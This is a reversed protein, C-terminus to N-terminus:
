LRSARSSKIGATGIQNSKPFSPTSYDGDDPGYMQDHKLRSPQYFIREKENKKIKIKLLTLKAKKKEKKFAHLFHPNFFFNPPPKM